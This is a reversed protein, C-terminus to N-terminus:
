SCKALISLSLLDQWEGQCCAILAYHVHTVTWCRRNKSHWGTGVPHQPVQPGPAYHSSQSPLATRQCHGFSHWCGQLCLPVCPWSCAEILCRQCGKHKCPLVMEAVLCVAKRVICDIFFSPCACTAKCTQVLYVALCFPMTGTTGHVCDRAM